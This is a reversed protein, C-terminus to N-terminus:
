MVFSIVTSYIEVHCTIVILHHHPPTYSRLVIHDVTIM